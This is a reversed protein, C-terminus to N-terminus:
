VGGRISKMIEDAGPTAALLGREMSFTIVEINVRGHLYSVSRERIKGCIYDYFNEVDIYELAEETTVCNMIKVATEPRGGLLIYNAAIIEFRSDSVRSHMDFNGGAIKVLKGTHGILLINKMGYYEGQELMYGAHNGISIISSEPIGCSNVAFDRGYRGPVFVVTDLGCEKMMSLELSLSEKVADSSLPEVIGTTGLISIGGEIGLKPNFTRKAIEVGEPASITIRVGRGTTRVSEVESKIMSMPGPNIAYCGPQVLLGKKTVVGVGTGGIIEVTDEDIFEARAFIKIGDTIDPDDGADKIISCEAYSGSLVPDSIKLELTIGAPTDITVFGPNDGTALMIVACKAAGAACAGTTYGMRLRRGNKFTYREM